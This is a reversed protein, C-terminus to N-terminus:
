DVRGSGAQRSAIAVGGLVVAAAITFSLTVGEGIVAFGGAAAIVPVTLQAVAARAAGLQPLVKYWLAYGLGSTMAGSVVALAVGPVSTVPAPDLLTWVLLAIPLALLFNWATAALADSSRRGALSFVGWGAGASAMLLMPVAGTVKLTPAALLCLGAFAVIAGIWRDRHVAEGSWLAGAFMTIQVSGFLILAGTGTSLSRYASSFCFLYVLLGAVAPARGAWGPWLARGSVARRLGILIALMVAGALLRIMAFSVPDISGAAVAMRNLVSNAAFAAMALATLLFLNM